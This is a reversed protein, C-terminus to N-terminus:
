LLRPPTPAEQPRPRLLWQALHGTFIWLLGLALVTAGALARGQVAWFVKDQMALTFIPLFLFPLLWLLLRAAAEVWRLPVAGTVLLALLIFLGIINGPLVLGLQSKLWEGAYLCLVLVVFGPALMRRGAPPESALPEPQGPAPAALPTPENM